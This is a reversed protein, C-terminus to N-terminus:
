LSANEGALTKKGTLWIEVIAKESISDDFAFTAAEYTKGVSGAPMLDDPKMPKKTELASFGTALGFCKGDALCVGLTAGAFKGNRHYEDLRAQLRQRLDTKATAATQSFAAGHWVFLIM